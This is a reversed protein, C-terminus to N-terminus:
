LCGKLMKQVQNVIILYQVYVHDRELDRSM